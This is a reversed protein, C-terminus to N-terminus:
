NNLISPPSFSPTCHHHHGPNKDQTTTPSPPPCPPYTNHINTTTTSFPHHQKNIIGLDLMPMSQLAYLIALTYRFVIYVFSYQSATEARRLFNSSLGDAWSRWWKRQEFSNGFMLGNVARKIIPSRTSAQAYGIGDASSYPKRTALRFSAASLASNFSPMGDSELGLAIWFANTSRSLYMNFASVFSSCLAILYLM